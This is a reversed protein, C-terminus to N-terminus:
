IKEEDGGGGGGSVLTQDSDIDKKKIRTCAAREAKRARPKWCGRGGKAAGPDRSGRSNGRFRKVTLDKEPRKWTVIVVMFRGVVELKLKRGATRDGQLPHGRGNQPTQVRVSCEKRVANVSADLTGTCYNMGEEGAKPSGAGGGRTQM